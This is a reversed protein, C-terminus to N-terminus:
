TSYLLGHQISLPVSATGVETLARIAQIFAYMITTKCQNLKMLVNGAEDDRMRM